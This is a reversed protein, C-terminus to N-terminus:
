IEKQFKMAHLAVGDGSPGTLPDFAALEFGAPFTKREVRCGKRVGALTVQHPGLARVRRGGSRSRKTGADPAGAAGEIGAGIATPM